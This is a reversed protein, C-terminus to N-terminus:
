FNRSHFSTFNIKRWPTRVKTNLAFIRDFEEETIQGLQLGTAVGANNVLIDLRGLDAIISDILAKHRKVDSIDNKIAM